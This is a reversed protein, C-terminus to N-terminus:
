DELGNQLFSILSELFFNRDSFNHTYFFNIGMYHCYGLLLVAVLQKKQKNMLLDSLLHNVYFNVEEELFQKYVEPYILEIERNLTYKFPSDKYYEFLLYLFILFNDLATKNPRYNDELFHFIQKRIRFLIIKLFEEKNEFYNYFTGISLNVKQALDQIRFSSFPTTKLIELGSNLFTCRINSSNFPVRLYFSSEELELITTKLPESLGYMLIKTLFTTDVEINRSTYYINIYRIGSILFFYEYENLTREYIKNLAEHYVEKLKKEHELFKYQGERYVRILQFEKKTLSINIEIFSKLREFIINGQIQNFYHHIRTSTEQLLFCFLETKNKFYSYFIGNSVEALKCIEVISVFEYKKTSFLIIASEIIKEKRSKKM